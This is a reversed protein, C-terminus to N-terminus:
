FSALLVLRTPHVLGVNGARPDPGLIALTFARGPALAESGSASAFDAWPVTVLSSEGAGLRVSIEAGAVGAAYDAVPRSEPLTPRLLGATVDTAIEQTVVGGEAGVSRTHVDLAGVGMAAHLVQLTTEDERVRRSPSVAVVRLNGRAPEYDDGCLGRTGTMGAPLRGVCGALVVILSSEDAVSGAALGGLEVVRTSEVGSDSRERAADSAEGDTPAASADTPAASADGALADPGADAAAPEPDPWVPTLPDVSVSSRSQALAECQAAGADHHAPEGAILVLSIAEDGRLLPADDPVVWVEGYRLGGAPLPTPTIWREAGAAGAYACLRLVQGDVVGHVFSLRRGVVDVWPARSPAAGPNRGGSDLAHAESADAGADGDGADGGTIPAGPQTGRSPPSCAIALVLAAAGLSGAAGSM